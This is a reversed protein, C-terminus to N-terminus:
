RDPLISAGQHARVPCPLQRYIGGQGKGHCPAAGVSLWGKRLRSGGKVMLMGLGGAVFDVPLHGLKQYGKWPTGCYAPGPTLLPEKM